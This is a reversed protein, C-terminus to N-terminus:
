DPQGDITGVIYINGLSDIAIDDASVGNDNVLVTSWNWDNLIDVYRSNNMLTNSPKIDELIDNTGVSGLFANSINDCDVKSEYNDM